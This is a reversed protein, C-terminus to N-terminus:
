DGLSRFVFPYQVRVAGDAPVPFRVRRVEEDICRTMTEDSIDSRLVVVDSVGGSRAITWEFQVVGRLAGNRALADVYCRQFQGLHRELAGEVEAREIRGTGTITLRMNSGNAGAMEKSRREQRPSRVRPDWSPGPAGTERARNISEALSPSLPREVQRPAATPALQEPPASAALTSPTPLVPRRVEVAVARPPLEPMPAPAAPAIRKPPKLKIDSVEAPRTVSKPAPPALLLVLTVAVLAAVLTASAVRRLRNDDRTAEPSPADEPGLTFPEPTRVTTLHWWLKGSRLELFEGASLDVETPVNMGLEQPAHDGIRCQFGSLSAVLTARSGESVFQVARRDDLFVSFQTSVPVAEYVADGAGSFLYATAEANRPVEIPQRKTPPLIPRLRQVRVAFDPRDNDPSGFLAVAAGTEIARDPIPVIQRPRRQEGRGAFQRASMGEPMWHMEWEERLDLPLPEPPRWVLPRERGGRVVTVLYGAQVEGFLAKGPRVFTLTGDNRPM